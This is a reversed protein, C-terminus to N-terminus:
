KEKEVWTADTVTQMSQEDNALTVTHIGRLRYYYGQEVPVEIKKEITIIKEGIVNWRCYEFWEGGMKQELILGLYLHDAVVTAGTEGKIELVGPKEKLTDLSSRIYGLLSGRERPTASDEVHPNNTLLSGDVVQGLEDLGEAYVSLQSIQLSAALTFAIASLKIFKKM